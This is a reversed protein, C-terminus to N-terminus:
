PPDAGRIRTGSSRRAILALDAVVGWKVSLIVGEALALVPVSRSLYANGIVLETSERVAARTYVCM